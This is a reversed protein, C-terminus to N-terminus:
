LMVSVLFLFLFLWFDLMQFSAFVQVLDKRWFKASNNWNEKSSTNGRSHTFSIICPFDSMFTICSFAVELFIYEYIVYEFFITQWLLCSSWHKITLNYNIKFYCNDWQLWDDSPCCLSSTSLIISMLKLNFNFAHPM